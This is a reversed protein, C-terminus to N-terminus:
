LTYSTHLAHVCFWALAFRGGLRDPEDLGEDVGVVEFADLLEVRRVGQTRPQVGVPEVCRCADAGRPELTRERQPLRQALEDAGVGTKGVVNGRGAHDVVSRPAGPQM